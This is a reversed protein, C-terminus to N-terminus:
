ARVSVRHLRSPPAPLARCGRAGAHCRPHLASVPGAAPAAVLRVTLVARAQVRGADGCRCGLACRVPAARCARRLRPVGAHRRVLVGRPEHLGRLHVRSAHIGGAVLPVLILCGTRPLECEGLRVQSDLALHAALRECCGTSAARTAATNLARGLLTRAPPLSASTLPRTSARVQQPFLEESLACVAVVSNLVTLPLQPLAARTLAPLWDSSRFRLVEPVAPGLRLEHAAAPDRCLAMVVGVLVLVLAAPFPAAATPADCSSERRLVTRRLSLLLFAAAAAAVMLSEVGLLPRLHQPEHDAYVAMRFGKSALGM